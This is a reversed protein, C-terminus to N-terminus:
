QTTVTASVRNPNYISNGSTVIEITHEGAHVDTLTTNLDIVGDQVIVEKIVTHKDYKISLKQTRENAVSGTQANNITAQVHLTNDNITINQTVINTNIKNLTINQAAETRNYNSGGFVASLKYTKASYNNPITYNLIAVGNTVDVVYRTNNDAITKDNLKFTVHGRTVPNGNADTITAIAIVQSGPKLDSTTVNLVVNADIKNLTFNETAETRNYISGGFVASLRYTKTSYNDPITYNLTVQGNTVNYIITQNDADRLTKGNIKFIVTGANVPNGNADTINVTAILNQGAKLNTSVVTITVTANNKVVSITSNNRASTYVDSGSYVVQTTNAKTWTATTNLIAVGSTVDVRIPNGENDKLTVNNVKFIVYGGTVNNGNEDVVHAIFSVTDNLMANIPDVTIITDYQITLTTNTATYYDNGDYKLVYNLGDDLSITFTNTNESLEVLDLTRNDNNKLYLTGSTITQNNIDVVVAEININRSTFDVTLNYKIFSDGKNIIPSTTTNSSLLTNNKQFVATITSNIWEKTTLTNYTTKGNVVELTKDGDPTTLIVVGNLEDENNDTVTINIDINEGLKPTNTTITTKTTIGTVNIYSIKATSNNYYESATYLVKIFHSGVQNLTITTNAEGNTLELPTQAVDNVYVTVQGDTVSENNATVKINLNSTSTVSSVTVEQTTTVTLTINTDVVPIIKVNNNTINNHASSNEEIFHNTLTTTINNYQINNYSSANLTVVATTVNMYNNTINNRLGNNITIGENNFVCSDITTYYCTNIILGKNFTCNTFNINNSGTVTVVNDFVVNTVNTYDSGEVFTFMMPVKNGKGLVTMGRINVSNSVTVNSRGEYNSNSYITSNTTIVNTRTGEYIDNFASNNDPDYYISNGEMRELISNYLYIPYYTSISYIFSNNITLNVNAFEELNKKILYLSIYTNSNEITFSTIDGSVVLFRNDGTEFSETSNENVSLLNFTLYDDNKIINENLIHLSIGEMDISNLYTDKNDDTITIHLPISTNNESTYKVSNSLIAEEGRGKLSALGNNTITINAIDGNLIIAYEKNYLSIINNNVNVNSSSITLTGNINNGELTTNESITISSTINNDKIISNSGANLSGIINGTINANNISLSGLTNNSIISGTSSISVSGDVTNNRIILSKLSESSDSTWQEQITNYKAEPNNKIINNEITINEGQIVLPLTIPSNGDVEIADITNGRITINYNSGDANYTTIYVLNGIPTIQSDGSSVGTVTNNEFLINHVGGAFVVTSHGTNGNTYFSSNAVTVNSSSNRISFGGVGSGISANVNKYTINTICVNNAGEVSVRTNYFTIGTINSGSGSATVKFISYGTHDSVYGEIYADNTTSTINVAKNVTLEYKSGILDGQIDIVDGDHVNDNFQKNTVYDDFTLSNLIITNGTNDDSKISSKLSKSLAINNSTSETLDYARNNKVTASGSNNVANDGTLTNGNYYSTLYNNEVTDPTKIVVAYINDTVNNYETVLIHNDTIQNSLSLTSDEIEIGTTVATVADYYGKTSRNHGTVKIINNQIYTKYTTDFGMGMAITGNVTVNNYNIHNYTFLSSTIKYGEIGYVIDSNLNINNYSVTCDKTMDVIYNASLYIGYAFSESSLSSEAYKYASGTINNYNLLIHEDETIEIGCIYNESTLRITNSTANCRDSKEISIGYTYNANSMNLINNRILAYTSENRITIGEFTSTSSGVTTSNTITINNNTLNMYSSSDVVIGSVKVFGIYNTLSTNTWQKSQPQANIVINNSDITSLSTSNAEIAFTTGADTKTLKINNNNINVNSKGNIYIVSENANNTNEINLNSITVGNADVIFNSNTFKTTNSGTITVGNTIDIEKNDFEGVFNITSYEDMYSSLQDYNDNTVDISSEKKLNKNKAKTTTEVKKDKKSTTKVVNDDTKQINDNAQIDQSTTQIDTHDTSDLTTTNDSVEQASASSIGVILFVFISLLLIKKLSIKM